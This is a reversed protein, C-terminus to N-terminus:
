QERLLPAVGLRSVRRLALGFAVASLAVVAVSLAVLQVIPVSVV